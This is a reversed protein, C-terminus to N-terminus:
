RVPRQASALAVIRALGEESPPASLLPALNEITEIPLDWRAVAELAEIVADDFRRRLFRAPNGGWVEYAGVDKTVTSTAAIVAGNGIRLGSLITVNRGIWVDHGIVIDGKTAPHGPVKPTRLLDKHIHGFPYTTMWDPRHNGGLLVTVGDAISCFSGITLSAGEGHQRLTISDHGYTFRGVSITSNRVRTHRTVTPDGQPFYLPTDKGILRRILRRHKEAVRFRM